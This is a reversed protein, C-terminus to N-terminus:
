KSEFLMAKNIFDEKTIVGTLSGNDYVFIHTVNLFTFLYQLKLCSLSTDITIASKESNLLNEEFHIKSNLLINDNM